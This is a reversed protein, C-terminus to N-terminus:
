PNSISSVPANPPGFSMEFALNPPSNAAEKAEEILHNGSAKESGERHIRQVPDPKYMHHELEAIRQELSQGTTLCYYSDTEDKRVISYDRALTTRSASSTETYPQAKLEALFRRMYRKLEIVSEVLLPYCKLMESYDNEAYAEQVYYCAYHVRGAGIM